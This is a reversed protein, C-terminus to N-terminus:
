ASKRRRRLLAGFGAGVMGLAMSPEPIVNSTSIIYNDFYATGGAASSNPDFSARDTSLDADSFADIETAADDVFAQSGVLTGDVSVSYTDTQYDMVIQYQHFEGLSIAPGALFNFTGAEAYLVEGTTADQGLLGIVAPTAAASNDYTQIGFFPGFQTARLGTPEVRMSFDVFVYRDTPTFPKRVAHFFAGSTQGNTGAPRTLRVAQSGSEVVSTQVVATPSTGPSSVWPGFQTDQGPLIGPNFRNAGNFPQPEFGGADYVIAAGAPAASAAAAMLGAVVALRRVSASSKLRKPTLQNLVTQM